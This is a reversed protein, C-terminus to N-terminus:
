GEEAGGVVGRGRMEWKVSNVRQTLAHSNWTKNYLLPIATGPFVESSTADVVKAVNKGVL